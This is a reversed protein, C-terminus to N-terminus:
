ASKGGGTKIWAMVVCATALVALAIALAIVAKRQRAFRAEIEEIEAQIDLARREEPGFRISGVVPPTNSEASPQPRPEENEM